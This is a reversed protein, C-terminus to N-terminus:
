RARREMSDRFANRASTVTRAAPEKRRWAGCTQELVDLEGERGLQAAYMEIACELVRKKSTNLRRALVGIQDAASEDIRASIIKDM